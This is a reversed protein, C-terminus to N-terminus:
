VYRSKKTVAILDSYNTRYILSEWLSRLKRPKVTKDFIFKRLTEVRNSGIDSHESESECRSVTAIMTRPKVYINEDGINTVCVGIPAKALNVWTNVIHFNRHLYAGNTLSNVAVESTVRRGTCPIVICLLIHPFVFHCLESLDLLAVFM